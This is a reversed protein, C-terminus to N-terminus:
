GWCLALSLRMWLWLNKSRKAVFALLWFGSNSGRGKCELSVSHGRFEMDNCFQKSDEDVAVAGEVELDVVDEGVAAAEEEM